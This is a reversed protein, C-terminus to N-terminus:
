PSQSPKKFSELYEAIGRLYRRVVWAVHIFISTSGWSIRLEELYGRFGPNNETLNINMTCVDSGGASGPSGEGSYQGRM